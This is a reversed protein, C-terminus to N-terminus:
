LKTKRFIQDSVVLNKNDSQTALWDDFPKEVALLALRNAVADDLAHHRRLGNAAIAKEVALSFGGGSLLFPKGDLNTPWADLEGFIEQIWPWDWATSDTALKVPEDFAELWASLREGLEHMTMRAAGGELLPLVALRAFDSVDKLDYTDSLEAYFSREGAEDILGISILRPDIGLETFETDFFIRIM